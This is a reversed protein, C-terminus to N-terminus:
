EVIEETEAPEEIEEEVPIAKFPNDTTADFGPRSWTNFVDSVPKIKEIGYYNIQLSFLLQKAMLLDEPFPEEEIPEAPAEEPEPEEPEEVVNLTIDMGTIVITRGHSHIDNLLQKLQDYSGIATIIFEATEIESLNPEKQDPEENGKEKRMTNFAQAARALDYTISQIEIVEPNPTSVSIPFISYYMPLYGNRNMLDYTYYLLVDSKLPGLFPKSANSIKILTEDRKKKNQEAVMLKLKIADIESQLQQDRAQLNEHKAIGPTVVFRYEVFFLGVLLLFVLMVTERKSLSM